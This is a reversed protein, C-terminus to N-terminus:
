GRGALLFASRVKAADRRRSKEGDAFGKDFGKSFDASMKCGMPVALNKEKGRKFGEAWGLAYQTNRVEHSRVAKGNRM